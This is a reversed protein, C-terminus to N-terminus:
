PYYRVFGEVAEYEPLGLLNYEKATKRNRQESRQWFEREDPGPFMAKDKQSQHKFIARRKTKLDAPSLPVAMEIDSVEWEQWAGRYLWIECNNVWVKKDKILQDITDFLIQLCVRHTGHPDTLDGAAFIKEPKIKDLLEYTLDVDAPTHPNKKVVGTEYFPLNMFHGKEENVGCVRCAALAEGKRIFAKLDQIKKLDPQGEKKNKFFAKTQTFEAKVAENNPNSDICFQLFRLVDDDHVAINGSTQYAVHVDFGNDVLQIITGGMSIVDDDPHPSFIVAKANKTNVMNSQWLDFAGYLSEYVQKIILKLDFHQDYFLEALHNKMFDNKTLKLISKNTTHSLWIIAKRILKTDWVCPGVLWPTKESTLESAASKDLIFKCNNHKQLLTAPIQTTVGGEVVKQIVSVKSEGWALLLIEKSQMITKMGMTIAQTPVNKEGFFGSSADKRTLPDLWVLRTKSEFSSDPENFGIHGTRGIGLLQLDIGGLTAIKEDYDACYADIKDVLLTGDPVHIQAKPIDIEDFLNQHMFQVYSHISSSDMPFYEDLNFTFVNKFSVKGNRYAQILNRYVNIPTSGTALGLVFAEGRKTKQNIKEIIHESVAKSAIDSDNYIKVEIHERSADFDQKVINKLDGTLEM